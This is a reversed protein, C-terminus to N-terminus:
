GFVRIPSGAHWAQIAEIMQGYFTRYNNETVYGIHPTALVNDLTRFPHDAPLPEIDFVDLAAGAIHRQQLVKILAAQDIIPGRSSNILYASPKMWGLAQADVLGRSRDSLVLHVSLVDAQEFLQQKSVYTVGSEAAAEATLNQSWAIVNMGFAQGYRAIWKGISGLGLIGLTKGHLDSGLGVQWNGARLSNAEAVLNRTIGMILAWTLEPAANKYSETGCVVIGQREAAATDIAANRMGGTVLLRLNPLQSLLADDFLTRERMVCLVDFGQLRQVMTATDAPYDHLFSIEGVSDLASWDVVGSAVNQWDDLVAIKLLTM